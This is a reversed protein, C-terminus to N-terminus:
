PAVAAHVPSSPLGKLRRVGRAVLKISATDTIARRARDTLLVEGPKATEALRAAANVTAGYWDRGRQVAPGRDLGAHIPPYGHGDSLALIRHALRVAARCEAAHVMVADGLAKVFDCEHEAALEQVRQHFATALDAALM